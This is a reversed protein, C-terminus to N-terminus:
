AAPQAPSNDLGHAGEKFIFRECCPHARPGSRQGLFREVDVKHVLRQEARQAKL